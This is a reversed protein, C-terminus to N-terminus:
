IVFPVEAQVQDSIGSLLRDRINMVMSEPTDTNDAVIIKWGEAAHYVDQDITEHVNARGRWLGQNLQTGRRQRGIELVRERTARILLLGPEVGRSRLYALAPTRKNEDSFGPDDLLLTKEKKLARDAAKRLCQQQVLICLMFYLRDRELYAHLLKEDDYDAFPGVAAFLPETATKFGPWRLAALFSRLKQRLEKAFQSKARRQEKDSKFNERCLVHYIGEINLKTWARDLIPDREILEIDGSSVFQNCVTSKGSGALGTVCWLNPRELM